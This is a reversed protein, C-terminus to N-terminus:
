QGRTGRTPGPHAEVIRITAGSLDIGLRPDSQHRRVLFVAEIVPLYEEIRRKAVDWEGAVQVVGARTYRKHHGIPYCFLESLFWHDATVITAGEQDATVLISPDKFGVQVAKVLHGRSALIRGLERVPLHEDIFFEIKGRETM